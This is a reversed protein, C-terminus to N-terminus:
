AKPLYIYVGLVDPPLQPEVRHSVGRVRAATRVRRHAALVEEGHQHAVRDLRPRIADFGDIIVHLFHAAQDPSINAEPHTHLLAEGQQTDLWQAQNPAGAFALVQCDETLLLQETDERRTIIHYRFRVLLVTTRREVSGTRIVGCRRAIGKGLPDLATDMVYSALGEVIPHTRSLYLQGERIPL